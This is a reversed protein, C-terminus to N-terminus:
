ILEYEARPSIAMVDQDSMRQLLTDMTVSALDWGFSEFYEKASFDSCVVERNNGASGGQGFAAALDLVDDCRGVSYAGCLLTENCNMDKYITNNNANSSGDSCERIRSHLNDCSYSNLPCVTVAPFPLMHSKSDLVFTTM